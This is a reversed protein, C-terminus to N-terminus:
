STHCVQQQGSSRRICYSSKWSEQAGGLAEGAGGMNRQLLILFTLTGGSKVEANVM